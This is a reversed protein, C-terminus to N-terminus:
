PKPADLPTPAAPVPPPAPAAPAPAVVPDLNPTPLPASPVPLDQTSYFVPTPAKKAPTISTIATQSPTKRNTVVLRPPKAGWAAIDTPAIRFAETRFNSSDNQQGVGVDQWYVPMYRYSVTYGKAYYRQTPRYYIPEIDRRDRGGYSGYDSRRYTRDEGGYWPRFQGYGPDDDYASAVSPFGLVLASGIALLASKNM